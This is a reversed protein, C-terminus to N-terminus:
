FNTHDDSYKDLFFYRIILALSRVGKCTTDIQINKLIFNSFRMSKIVELKTKWIFTLGEILIRQCGQEESSPFLRLMSPESCRSNNRLDTLNIKHHYINYHM